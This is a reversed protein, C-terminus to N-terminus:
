DDFQGKVKHKESTLVKNYESAYDVNPNKMQKYAIYAIVGVVFGAVAIGIPINEM